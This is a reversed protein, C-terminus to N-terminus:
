GPRTREIEVGVGTAAAVATPKTIRLKLAAIPWKRFLAAAVEAALHELLKAATARTVRTIEEAVDVYSLAHQVDDTQAAASMDIQLQVDFRLEQEVEREWDFVGIISEVRLGELFLTDLSESNPQATM